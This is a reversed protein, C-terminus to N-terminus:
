IRLYTYIHVNEPRSRAYLRRLAAIGGAPPRFSLAYVGFIISFIKM